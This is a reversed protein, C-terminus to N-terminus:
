YVTWGTCQHVHLSILGWETLLDARKMAVELESYLAQNVLTTFDNFYIIKKVVDAFTLSGAFSTSQLAIRADLTLPTVPLPFATYKCFYPYYCNSTQGVTNHCTATTSKMCTNSCGDADNQNGDDCEEGIRPDLIGDGCIGRSCISIGSIYNCSWGPEILCNFCGDGSVLNFDECQEGPELIGNGCNRTCFSRLFPINLCSWGVEEQCFQNCGDGPLLNGDDCDYQGYNFGDNASM